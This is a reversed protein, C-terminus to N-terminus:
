SKLHRSRIKDMRENLNENLYNYKELWDEFPKFENIIEEQIEQINM